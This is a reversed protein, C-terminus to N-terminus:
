PNSNPYSATSTSRCSSSPPPPPPLPPPTAASCSFSPSKPTQVLPNSSDSPPSQICKLSKFLYQHRFPQFKFPLSKLKQTPSVSFFSSSSSSSSYSSSARLAMTTASSSDM